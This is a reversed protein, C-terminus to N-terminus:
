LGPHKTVFINKRNSTYSSYVLLIYMHNATCTYIHMNKISRHLPCVCMCVAYWCTGSEIHFPQCILIVFSRAFTIHLQLISFKGVSYMYGGFPPRCHNLVMHHLIKIFNLRLIQVHIRKLIRLYMVYKQWHTHAKLHSSAGLWNM